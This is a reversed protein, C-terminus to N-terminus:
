SSTTSANYLSGCAEWNDLTDYVYATKDSSPSILHLFDLNTYFKEGDSELLGAFPLLDDVKHGPCTGKSCTPLDLGEVGSWDCVVHTDSPVDSAHSYEWSTDFDIFGEEMLRVKLQVFREANGHLAWFLPDQPATNTRACNHTPPAPAAARLASLTLPTLLVFSHKKMM